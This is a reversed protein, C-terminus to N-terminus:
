TDIKGHEMEEKYKIRIKDAIFTCLLATEAGRINFEAWLIRSVENYLDPVRACYKLLYEINTENDNTM